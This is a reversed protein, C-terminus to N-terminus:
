KVFESQIERKEFYKKVSAPYQSFLWHMFSSVDITNELLYKRKSQYENASEKDALLENIKSFINEKYAPKFGHVLGYKENLEKYQGFDDYWDDIEISPVGLVAAEACMTTSDSIFIRAFAIYHAIDAKSYSYRYKELEAPLGRESNIIVTGYRELYETIEKLLEDGIGKKGADHTSTVSVCRIFFYVGLSGEIKKRDPTFYDPHLHALAKYGMYGIKKKEYKGMDTASPSLIYDATATLIFSEPVATIDDDTCLISPVRMLKGTITLLDDTIFLDFNKGRAYRYLKYVTIFTFISSSIYSHIGKIRRGNPFINTYNWDEGKVLEELNGKGTILIETRHGEANLRNIVNRFFLYKSPHVIFFLYKM